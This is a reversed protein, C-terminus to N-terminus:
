KLLIKVQTLFSPLSLITSMQIKQLILQTNCFNRKNFNSQELYDTANSVTVIETKKFLCTGLPEENKVLYKKTTETQLVHVLPSFSINNKVETIKLYM